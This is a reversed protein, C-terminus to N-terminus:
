VTPAIACRCNITLEGPYMEGNPFREDTNVIVGDNVTHDNVTGMNARVKSDRSTLWQKGTVLNSQTYAENTAKSILRSTETRAITKARAVSMNDFYLRLSQGIQNVSLGDKLGQSILEKMEKFDTNLMSTVFFESRQELERLVDDASYFHEAAKTSFGTAISDMTEQGVKEYMKKLLPTFIGKSLNLETSVDFIHNENVGLKEFNELIRTM